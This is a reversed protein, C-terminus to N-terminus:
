QFRPELSSGPPRRSPVSEIASAAEVYGRYRAEARLAADLGVWRRSHKRDVPDLLIFSSTVGNAPPEANWWAAFASEDDPCTARFTATRLRLVHQVESSWLGAMVHTISLFGGRLKLREAITDALYARKANYSGLADQLNPYRTRNEIHLLSRRELSWAVVDGRGAFQYHQYPEDLAVPFRLAQLHAAEVDGMWAHVPDEARPVPTRREDVLHLEPRLNLVVAVRAYTRLLGPRGAELRQIEAATVCAREGLERLTWGRRIRAERIELGIQMALRAAVLAFRDGTPGQLSREAM